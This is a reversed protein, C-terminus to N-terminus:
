KLCLYDNVSTWQENEILPLLQHTNFLDKSQAGQNLAIIQNIKLGIDRIKKLNEDLHNEGIQSFQYSFQSAILNWDLPSQHKISTVLNQKIQTFMKNKEDSKTMDPILIFSIVVFIIGFLNAMSGNIYSSIDYTMVNNLNLYAPWSITIFFYLIGVLPGTTKAKYTLYATLIGMSILMVFPSHIMPMLGFQVIFMLLATLLHGAFAAKNLMLSPAPITASMVFFTGAIMMVSAGLEWQGFQWLLTILTLTSFARLGYIMTEKYNLALFLTEFYNGTETKLEKNLLRTIRQCKKKIPKPIDLLQTNINSEQNNLVRSFYQNIQDIQIQSLDRYDDNNISEILSLLEIANDIQTKTVSTVGMGLTSFISYESISKSLHLLKKNIEIPEKYDINNNVLRHRAFSLMNQHLQNTDIHSQNSKRIPILAMVLEVTVIAIFVGTTRAFGHDWMSMITPNFTSPFGVFCLTLGQISFFSGFYTRHKFLFALMGTITLAIVIIINYLYIDIFVLGSISILFISVTTTGLLRSTIRSLRAGNNLEQLFIVSSIISSTAFSSGQEMSMLWCIMSAVGVRIAQRVPENQLITIPNIFGRQLM